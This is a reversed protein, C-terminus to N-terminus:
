LQQQMLMAKIKTKLKAISFPKIIFDVNGRFFGHIKTKEINKASLFIFPINKLENIDSVINFFDYGDMKEMHIDSIILDPRPQSGLIQLAEIGSHTCIIHYNDNLVNKLLTNMQEYDEVILITQKDKKNITNNNNTKEM